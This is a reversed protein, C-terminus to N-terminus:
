RMFLTAPHELMMRLEQVMSAGEYGDVCRHDFASSLNMTKRVVIAGDISRVTDAVKNVGIIAVEPANIVPTSSVGGLKGLSSVTITSGSLEAKTFRRARARQALALIQEGIETLSM